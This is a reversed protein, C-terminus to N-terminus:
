ANVSVHLFYFWTTLQLVLEGVLDECRFLLPDRADLIQVVVDSHCYCILGCGCVSFIRFIWHVERFSYSVEEGRGEM